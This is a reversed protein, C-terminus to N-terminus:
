SIIWGLGAHLEYCCKHLCGVLSKVSTPCHKQLCYCTQWGMGFQSSQLTMYLLLMEELSLLDSTRFQFQSGGQILGIVKKTKQNPPASNLKLLRVGSQRNLEM